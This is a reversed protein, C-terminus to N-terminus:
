SDAHALSGVCMREPRSYALHQVGEEGKVVVRIANFLSVDKHGQGQGHLRTM